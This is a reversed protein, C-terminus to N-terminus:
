VIAQRDPSCHALVVTPDSWAYRLKIPSGNLRSAVGGPASVVAREVRVAGRAEYFAQAHVNQELVWLYLPTEREIVAQAILALLESGVGQRKQTQRVHLNDLLAGWTADAKFVVHAFGVLGSDDEALVTDTRGDPDGLRASWVTERDDLVDGDLFSASYAGRYHRGWSDAHLAAIAAADAAGAPRFRLQKLYVMFGGEDNRANAGRM